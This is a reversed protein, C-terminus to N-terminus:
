HASHEATKGGEPSTQAQLELDMGCESCAGPEHSVVKPHMPCAYVRAAVPSPQATEETAIKEPAHQAYVSPSVVVCSALLIVAASIVFRNQM